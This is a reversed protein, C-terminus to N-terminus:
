RGDLRGYKKDVHDAAAGISTDDDIDLLLLDLVATVGITRAKHVSEQGAELSRCGVLITASPIRASIAQVIGFGIGRNGGTVLIVSM